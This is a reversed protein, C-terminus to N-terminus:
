QSLTQRAREIIEPPPSGHSLLHEAGVTTSAFELVRQRTEDETTPVPEPYENIVADFRAVAAISLMGALMIVAVAPVFPLEIHRFM